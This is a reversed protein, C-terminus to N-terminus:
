GFEALADDLAGLGDVVSRLETELEDLPDGGGSRLAVTAARAVLTELRVNAEALRDAADEALNLADHMARHREALADVRARAVEAEPGSQPAAELRRRAAKLEATAGDVDLGAAVVSANAARWTADAVRAVATDVTVRLGDLRDRTPGTPTREVIGAYQDRSALAARVPAQWRPELSELWQQFRDGRDDAAKRRLM